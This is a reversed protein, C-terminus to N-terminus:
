EKLIKQVVGDESRLYYIGTPLHETNVQQVETKTKIQQVFQGQMNILFANQINTSIVNFHNVFPSPYITIKSDKITPNSSSM